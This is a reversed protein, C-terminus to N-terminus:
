PGGTAVLRQPRAIEARTARTTGSTPAQEFVLEFDDRGVAPGLVVALPKCGPGLPPASVVLVPGVVVPAGVAPNDRGLAKTAM